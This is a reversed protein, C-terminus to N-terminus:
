ASLVIQLFLACYISWACCIYTFSIIRTQALSSMPSHIRAAPICQSFSLINRSTLFFFCAYFPLSTNPGPFPPIEKLVFTRLCQYFYSLPCRLSYIMGEHVGPGSIFQATSDRLRGQDEMYM